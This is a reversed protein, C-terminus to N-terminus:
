TGLERMFISEPVRGSEGDSYVLVVSGDGPRAWCTAFEQGDFTSSGGQFHERLHPPIFKLVEDPCAARYLKVVIKGDPSRSVMANDPAAQAPAVLLTVLSFLLVLLFAIRHEM